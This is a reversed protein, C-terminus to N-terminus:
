KNQMREVIHGIFRNSDDIDKCKHKVFNDIESSDGVLFFIIEVEGSLNVNEQILTVNDMNVWTNRGHNLIRVLM